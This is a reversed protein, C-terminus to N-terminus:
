QRLELPKIAFCCANWYFHKCKSLWLDRGIDHFSTNKGDKKLNVEPRANCQKQYKNSLSLHLGNPSCLINYVKVMLVKATFCM